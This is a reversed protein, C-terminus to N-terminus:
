LKKKQKILLDIQNNLTNKHQMLMEYVIWNEEIGETITAIKNMAIKLATISKDFSRQAKTDIDIIRDRYLVDMYKNGNDDYASSPKDKVNKVLERTEKATLHGDVIIKSIRKRNEPDHIPLLEEAVTSKVMSNQIGELIYLPLGLLSMKKYVYIPSKGIKKALDSIGGFGFSDIYLRFARAEEIPDLSKRQINEALFISFADKESLEVIHCVIKRWGLSKCANFRRNGAVIEYFDDVTRVIIPHLLGSEKISDKLEKSDFRDPNFFSFKPSQKVKHIDIEEIIGVLLNSSSFVGRM